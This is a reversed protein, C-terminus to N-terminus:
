SSSSPASGGVAAYLVIPEDFGKLTADGPPSCTWCTRALRSRSHPTSIEERTRCAAHKRLWVSSSGWSSAGGALAVMRSWIEVAVAEIGGLLYRISTAAYTAGSAYPNWLALKSVVAPRQAAYLLAAYLLAAYPLAAYLLAAYLLDAPTSHAAGF